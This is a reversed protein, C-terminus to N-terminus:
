EPSVKCTTSERWGSKGLEKTVLRLELDPKKWRAFYVKTTKPDGKSVDPNTPLWHDCWAAYLKCCDVCRANPDKRIPTLDCVRAHTRIYGSEPSGLTEGGLNVMLPYKNTDVQQAGVHVGGALLLFLVLLDGWTIPRMTKAVEGDDPQGSTKGRRLM